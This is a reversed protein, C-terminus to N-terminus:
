IPRKRRSSRMPLPPMPVTQRASGTAPTARWFTASLSMLRPMSELVDDRAEHAFAADERPEIM